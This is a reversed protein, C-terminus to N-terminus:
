ASSASRSAAPRRPARGPDRELVLAAGDHRVRLGLTAAVLDIAARPPVEDLTGTFPLAALTSDALRVEVGYWRHLTLLVQDLPTDTFAHRGDLWGLMREVDAGRRVTAAGDATLQGV